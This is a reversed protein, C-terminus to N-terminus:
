TLQGNRCSRLHKGHVYFLLAICFFFFHEDEALADIDHIFRLNIIIRSGICIKGDREELADSM